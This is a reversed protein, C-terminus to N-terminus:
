YYKNPMYPEVIIRSDKLRAVEPYEPKFDEPARTIVDSIQLIEPHLSIAAIFAEENGGVGAYAQGKLVGFIVINGSAKIEAGPNVDGIVVVNGNFDISQGSRITNRVFKTKGENTPNVNRYKKEQKEEFVCNIIQLEDFLIDRLNKMDRESFFNLDAFIKISAGKYFQIGKSLRRLLAHQFENFDQFKEINVYINLGEKNGKISLGDDFM